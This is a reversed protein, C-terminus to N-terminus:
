RDRAIALRGLAALAALRGMDPALTAQMIDALERLRARSAEVGLLAPFTTKAQAVDKGVTKGLAASDGEVDLLDDRIQFALGLADAYDDLRTATASDVKAALAGVRISARLLAGTKMAHLRELQPASITGAGGTADLDLAQGGCMGRSGAAAALERANLSGERHLARYLGLSRGLYVGYLELSQITANFLRETLADTPALCQCM